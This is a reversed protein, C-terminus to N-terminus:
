IDLHDADMATVVAQRPFLHLFSRDYEDAEAVVWNSSASLLLNSHYNRSIGGLFASCDLHSQKLLHASMTSTTTKGHTGAIAIVEKTESIMGLVEARKKIVFGHNRFFTFEQHDAPVAPTFIVLTNNNNRFDAPIANVEDQYHIRMGEQELQRTLQSPTRDFGAVNKGQNNFYRALASMGIGGIGLLYINPITNLNNM